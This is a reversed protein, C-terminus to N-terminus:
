RNQRKQMEEEIMHQKTAEGPMPLYIKAAQFALAIGWGFIVWLSWMNEPSRLLNMVVLTTNIIVFVAIHRYFKIKREIFEKAEQYAQTQEMADERHNNINEFWGSRM